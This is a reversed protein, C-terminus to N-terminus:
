FRWDKCLTLYFRISVSLDSVFVSVLQNLFTPDSFLVGSDFAARPSFSASVISIEVTGPMKRRRKETVTDTVEAWQSSEKEKKQRQPSLIYIGYVKKKKDWQM